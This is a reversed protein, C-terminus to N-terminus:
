QVDVTLLGKAVMITNLIGNCFDINFDKFKLEDLSGKFQVNDMKQNLAVNLKQKADNIQPNIDIHLKKAIEDKFTSHKIWDIVKIPLNNTQFNYDFNQVSVINTKEDLVLKGTCYLTGRLFGGVYTAVVIEDNRGYVEINKIKIKKSGILKNKILTIKKGILAKKAEKILENLEATINTNIKFGPTIPESPVIQAAPLVEVKPKTSLYFLSPYARLGINITFSKNQGDLSSLYFSSPQLSFWTNTSILKPDSVKNWFDILKKHSDIKQIALANAESLKQNLMDQVKDKLKDTVDFNFVSLKCHNGAELKLASINPNINFKTDFTPTISFGVNNMERLPENKGCSVYFLTGFRTRAETWYKVGTKLTISGGTASIDLHDRNVAYKYQVDKHITATGVRITHPGWPLPNPIPVEIPIEIPVSETIWADGSSIGQPVIENIKEELPNLDFHIPVDVNSIENTLLFPKQELQVPQQRIVRCSSFFLM